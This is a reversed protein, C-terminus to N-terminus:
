MFLLARGETKAKIRLRIRIGAGARAAVRVTVPEQGPRQIRRRQNRYRQNGPKGEFSGLYRRRLPQM